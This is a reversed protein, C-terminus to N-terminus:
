SVFVTGILKQEKEELEKRKIDLRQEEESTMEIMQQKM